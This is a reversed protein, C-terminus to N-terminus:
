KCKIVAYLAYNNPRTENIPQTNPPKQIGDTRTRISSEGSAAARTMSIPHTHRTDGEKIGSTRHSNAITNEGWNGDKCMVFPSKNGEYGLSHWHWYCLRLNNIGTTHRHEGNESTAGGHNHRIKNTEGRHNHTIFTDQQEAVNWSGNRDPDLNGSARNDYNRIFYGRLDPLRFNNGSGGYTNGIVNYLDKFDIKSLESGDCLKWSDPLNSLDASYYSIFGVPVGFISRLFDLSNKQGYSFNNNFDEIINPEMIKLNYNFLKKNYDLNNKM